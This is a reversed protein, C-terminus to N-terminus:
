KSVCLSNVEQMRDYRTDCGQSQTTGANDATNCMKLKWNLRNKKYTSLWDAAAAYM